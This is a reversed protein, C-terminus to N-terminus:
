KVPNVDVHKKSGDQLNLTDRYAIRGTNGVFTTTEQTTKKGASDYNTILQQKNGNKDSLGTTRTYDLKGNKYLYTTTEIHDLKGSNGSFVTTEETLKKGQDNYNTITQIKNGNKDKLGSTRAYMLDGNKDYLLTIKSGDKANINIANEGNPAKLPPNDLINTKPNVETYETTHKKFDEKGIYSIRGTDGVFYTTEATTKNGKSDYNTITQMKNGNEDKLGSTRAYMLDGNKDYLFTTTSGDKGNLIFANKGDPSKLPPNDISHQVPNVEDYKTSGKKYDFTARYAIRNTDGVFTTTESTTKNGDDDYNTILQQKNGLDDKLGTTRSYDLKGDEDYLFTTTTGDDNETIFYNADENFTMVDDNKDESLLSSFISTDYDNKGNQNPKKTIGTQPKVNETLGIKFQQSM